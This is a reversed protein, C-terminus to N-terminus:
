GLMELVDMLLAMPINQMKILDIKEADDLHDFDGDTKMMQFMDMGTSVRMANMIDEGKDFLNLLDPVHDPAPKIFKGSNDTIGLKELSERIIPSLTKRFSEKYLERHQSVKDDVDELLAELFGDIKDAMRDPEKIIDGIVTYIASTMTKGSMFM